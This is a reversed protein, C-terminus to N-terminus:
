VTISKTLTWVLLHPKCSLIPRSWFGRPPLIVHFSFHVSLATSNKCLLGLFWCLLSYQTCWHKQLWCYDPLNFFTWLHMYLSNKDPFWAGLGQNQSTAGALYISMTTKVRMLFVWEMWHWHWFPSFWTGWLLWDVRRIGIVSYVRKCYILFLCCENLRQQKWSKDAFDVLSAFLFQSGPEKKFTACEQSCPKFTWYM